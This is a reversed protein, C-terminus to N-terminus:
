LTIITYGAASGVLDRVGMFKYLAAVFRLSSRSVLHGEDDDDNAQLYTGEYSSWILYRRRPFSSRWCSFFFDVKRGAEPSGLANRTRKKTASRASRHQKRGNGKRWFRYSGM